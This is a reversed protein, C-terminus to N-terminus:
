TMIPGLTWNTNSSNLFSASYFKETNSRGVRYIVTSGRLNRRPLKKKWFLDIGKRSDPNSYGDWSSEM